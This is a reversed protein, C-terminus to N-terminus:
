ASGRIPPHRPPGGLRLALTLALVHPVCKGIYQIRLPRQGEFTVFDWLSLPCDPTDRDKDRDNQSNQPVFASKQGQGQGLLWAFVSKFFHRMIGEV